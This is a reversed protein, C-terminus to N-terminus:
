LGMSEVFESNSVSDTTVVADKLMLKGRLLRDLHVDFADVRPHLSAPLHIFVPKEQGIRYVRDSAQAEKAPNWHRELHIVHNAGVVTLGVGAAVPSMILVNFGEVAEFQAILQRRSRVDKKKPVASTDGNIVSVNLGLISDLWLKLLRQLRKTVMFIIVKEQKERIRELQELLVKLKASRCMFDRAQDPSNPVLHIEDALDPHLSAGRLRRLVDLARGRMDQTARDKKYSDLVDDYTKLQHDTMIAALEPAHVHVGDNPPSLASRIVKRPLGTLEDEKTRRMMFPGVADRLQQGLRTRIEDRIREDCNQIPKVWQERFEPWGGLLGPQATDVLCWFDALSNEVPTGTAILKFDARLGKAARTQQANPNKINQAEDFVVVGWDVRCLSFQYDRLTQYTTIVLRRERDLRRTGADAGIYLAYRVADDNLLEGEELDAVQSSERTVGKIRYKHLHHGSQLIVTDAFPSERFTADVEDAWTEMLSLPAVVLIPKCQEGLHEQMLFYQNIAVLGMMTKGLGMDDALIAGQLRYLDDKSASSAAGILRAMWEIGSLQHPYPSRALNSTDVPLSLEAADALDRLEARVDDSQKLVLGIPKGEPDPQSKEEPPDAQGSELKYRVRELEGRVEDQDSIDFHKREHEVVQAGQGWAATVKQEFQKLDDLTAVFTAIAQPPELAGDLAFWDPRDDTPQAFDMHVLKGIGEVRVSFGLELNVLSADLFASPTALFEKVQDPRIRRNSLIEKVAEIREEELLVIREGVRVAGGRGNDLDLQHWRKNLAEPASGDGLSPTLQLSGDPLMEATVGVNDPVGVQMTDFPGLDIAMGGQRAKQLKAMVALNAAETRQEAALEQHREVSEFAALEAANLRYQEHDGLCLLPGARTAICERGEMYTRLSVRFGPHRTHGDIRLSFRGPFDPPLCLIAGADNDLSVITSSDTGFGNPFAEALGEEELMRLAILQVTALGRIQGACLADFREQEMYFIMGLSDLKTLFGEDTVGDGQQKGRLRQLVRTLPGM